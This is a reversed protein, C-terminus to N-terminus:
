RRHNRTIAADVLHTDQDDAGALVHVNAQADYADLLRGPVAGSFGQALSAEQAGSYGLSYTAQEVASSAGDLSCALDDLPRDDASSGHGSRPLSLRRERVGGVPGSPDTRGEDDPEM